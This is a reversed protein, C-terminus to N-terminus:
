LGIVFILYIEVIYISFLMSTASPIRVLLGPITLPNLRIWHGLERM